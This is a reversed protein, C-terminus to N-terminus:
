TPSSSHHCLQMCHSSSRHRSLTLDLSRLSHLLCCGSGRLVELALEACALPFGMAVLESKIEAKRNTQWDVKPKEAAAAAPASTANKKKKKKKAPLTDDLTPAAPVTENPVDDVAVPATPLEPKENKVLVASGSKPAKKGRSTKGKKKAGSSAPTDESPGGTEGGVETTGEKTKESKTTSEEDSRFITFLYVALCIGLALWVGISSQSGDLPFM